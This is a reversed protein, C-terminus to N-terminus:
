EAPPDALVRQVERLMTLDERTAIVLIRSPSAATAIDADAQCSANANPDLELGLCTLGQCIAARVAAAHEGVGATFVLADVGGLTVALAGVAQRVRRAYMALALAARPQDAAAAALIERM